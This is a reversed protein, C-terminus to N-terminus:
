ARATKRKTELIVDRARAAIRRGTDCLGSPKCDTCAKVHGQLDVVEVGCMRAATDNAARELIEEGRACPNGSVCEHCADVHRYWDAMTMLSEAAAEGQLRISPIREGPLLRAVGALHDIADVRASTAGQEDAAQGRLDSV